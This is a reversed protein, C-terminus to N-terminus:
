RRKCPCTLILWRCSKKMGVFPYAIIPMFKQTLTLMRNNCPFSGPSKYHTINSSLMTMYYFHNICQTFRPYESVKSSWTSPGLKYILILKLTFDKNNMVKCEKLSSAPNQLTDQKLSHLIRFTHNNMLM